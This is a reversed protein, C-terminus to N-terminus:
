FSAVIAASTLQDTQRFGAVPVHVFDLRHSFKLAFVANLAASVSVTNTVRWDRATQLSATFMGDDSLRATKSLQWRYRLGANGTAFSQTGDTPNVEHSYGLGGVLQLAQPAKPPLADWAVGADTAIRNVIGAFRNKLYDVQGYGELRPQLRRTARIEGTLSEANLEARTTSRVFSSKTVVSWDPPRYAVEASAGLTQAASNGSSSVFSLEAKGSWGPPEDPASQALLPAPVLLFCLLLRNIM